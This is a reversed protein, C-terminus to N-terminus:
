YKAWPLRGYAVHLHTQNMEDDVEPTLRDNSAEALKKALYYAGVGQSDRWIHRFYQDCVQVPFTRPIKTRSEFTNLFALRIVGCHM